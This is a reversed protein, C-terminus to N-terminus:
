VDNLKIWITIRLAEYSQVVQAKQRKMQKWSVNQSQKHNEKYLIPKTWPKYHKLSSM